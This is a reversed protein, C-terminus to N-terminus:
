LCGPCHSRGSGAAGRHGHRGRHQPALWRSAVQSAVPPAVSAPASCGHGTGPCTVAPRCGGAAARRRFVGRGYDPHPQAGHGCRGGVRSPRQPSPGALRGPGSRSGVMPACREPACRVFPTAAQCGSGAGAAGSRGGGLGGAGRAGQSGGGRCARELLPPRWLRGHGLAM